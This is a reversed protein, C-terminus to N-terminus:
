LIIHWSIESNLPHLTACMVPFGVGWEFGWKLWGAILGSVFMHSLRVFAPLLGYGSLPDLAEKHRAHSLPSCV